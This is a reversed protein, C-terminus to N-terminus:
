VSKSETNSASPNGSNIDGLSTSTTNSSGRDGNSYKLYSNILTVGGWIGALGLTARLRSQPPCYKVMAAVGATLAGTTFVQDLNVNINFWTNNNDNSSGTCM